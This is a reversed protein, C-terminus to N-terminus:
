AESSLGLWAMAPGAVHFSGAVLVRDGPRAREAAAACAEAVGPWASARGGGVEGLAECLRATTLARPSDAPVFLWEDVEAALAGLVGRVDKTELGGFVCLRRGPVPAAALTDALAAAAAPNHAVDLWWEVDAQRVRQGRAALRAAGLAPALEAMRSFGLCAELLAMASAANGYQVQGALPPAPLGSLRGGPSEYCWRGESEARAHYDRGICWLEADIARAHALLSSPPAPDGCIAPRGARFIGAKEHGISERDPGLWDVHDLAVSAVLAGAPSVANVADLRGGLGVELVRATCGAQAFASLAALTGYEFYTLPVQGRAQEVEAFAALLGADDICADDIVVREHYRLLHPSTYLGVRYGGASLMAALYAACSGKGNTGGVLLTLAGSGAAPLRSLVTAVRELGLEIGAANLREQWALWDAVRDFPPADM